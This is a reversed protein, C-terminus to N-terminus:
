PCADRFGQTHNPDTYYWCYGPGPAVGAYAGVSTAAIFGIAAGAAIAGTIAPRGSGRIVRAPLPTFRVSALAFVPGLSQISRVHAQASLTGIIISSREVARGV